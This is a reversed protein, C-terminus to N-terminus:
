ILFAPKALDMKGLLLIISDVEFVRGLDLMEPTALDLFRDEVQLSVVVPMNLGQVFCGYWRFVSFLNKDHAGAPLPWMIDFIRVALEIDRM